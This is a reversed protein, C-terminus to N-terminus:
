KRLKVTRTVKRTHGAADVIKLTITATVKKGKKVATKITKLAAKVAKKTGKPKLKLTLTQGARVTVTKTTLKIAKKAGKIKVTGSATVVVAGRAPATM